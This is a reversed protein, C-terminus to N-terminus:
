GFVIDDLDTVESQSLIDILIIIVHLFVVSRKRDFPHGNLRNSVFHECRLAIYNISKLM